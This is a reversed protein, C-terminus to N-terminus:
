AAVAGQANLAGVTDTLLEILADMLTADMLHEEVSLNLQSIQRVDGLDAGLLREMGQCLEARVTWTPDLVGVGEFALVISGDTRASVVTALGDPTGIAAHMVSQGDVQEYRVEDFAGTCATQLQGLLGATADGATRTAGDVFAAGDANAPGTPTAPRQSGAQRRAAAAPKADPVTPRLDAAPAAAAPSSSAARLASATGGGLLDVQTSRIAFVTSSGFSSLEFISGLAGASTLYRFTQVLSPGAQQVLAVLRIRGAALSETVAGEFGDADFGDGSRQAVWDVLSSDGRRDCYGALDDFSAGTLAGAFGLLEGLLHDGPGDLAAQLVWVGGSPDLCIADPAGSPLAPSSAAVLVPHDVGLVARVDDGLLEAVGGDPLETRPQLEEWAGGAARVLLTENM